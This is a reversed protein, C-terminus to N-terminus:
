ALHRAPLEPSAACENQDVSDRFGWLKLGAHVAAFALSAPLSCGGPIDSNKSTQTQLSQSLAHSLSLALSLCGCVGMHVFSITGCGSDVM